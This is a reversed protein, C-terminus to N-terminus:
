EYKDAGAIKKCLNIFYDQDLDSKIRNVDKHLWQINSSTYGLSSDIRDLSAEKGLVIPIGSLACYGTFVKSMDEYGIEFCIGRSEAGAKVSQFYSASIGFEGKWHKSNEGTRHLSNPCNTIKRNDKRTLDGANVEVEGGCSCSCRWVVKSNVSGIYKLVTLDGFVRGTLDVTKNFGRHIYSCELSCTKRNQKEYSTYEGNCIPCLKIIKTQL